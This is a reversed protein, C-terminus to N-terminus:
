NRRLDIAKKVAAEANIVNFGNINLTTSYIIKRIQETRLKENASKMLAIIGAIIPPADSYGYGNEFEQNFDYVYTFVDRYDKSAVFPYELHYTAIEGPNNERIAVM